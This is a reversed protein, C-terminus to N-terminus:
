PRAVALLHDLRQRMMKQLDFGPQGFEGERQRLFEDQERQRARGARASERSAERVVRTNVANIERDLNALEPNACIAKEVPRRATACNFSPKNNVAMMAGIREIELSLSKYNAKAAANNPNLRVATGFDSLAHVRDSKKRYLEGRANFVDALTPDLRLAVDDDGIARDIEGKREYASARAIAAKVRDAKKAKDNDILGACSAIIKEDNAAAIAAMCPASDIQESTPEVTAASALHPALALWMVLSRGISLSFRM